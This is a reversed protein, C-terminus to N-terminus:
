KGGGDASTDPETGSTFTRGPGADRSFVEAALELDDVLVAIVYEPRGIEDIVREQIRVGASRLLAALRASTEKRAVVHFDEFSAMDEWRFVASLLPASTLKFDWFRIM